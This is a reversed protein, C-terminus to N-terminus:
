LQRGRMTGWREDGRRDTGPPPRGDIILQRDLGFPKCVVVPAAIWKGSGGRGRGPRGAGPPSAATHPPATPSAACSASSTARRTTCCRGPRATPTSPPRRGHHRRPRPPTRGRPDRSDTPRLCLHVRNKVTKPSPSPTSTSSRGGDLVVQTRTTAPAATRTAGSLGDGDSWFRALEYADACDIAVNQVVSVM